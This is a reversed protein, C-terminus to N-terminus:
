WLWLCLWGSRPGAPRILSFSQCTVLFLPVLGLSFFVSAKQYFCFIASSCVCITFEICCMREILCDREFLLILIVWDLMGCHELLWTGEEMDSPLIAKIIGDESKRGRLAGGIVFPLLEDGSSRLSKRMPINSSTKSMRLSSTVISPLLFSWWSQLGFRPPNLCYFAMWGDKPDVVIVGSSSSQHNIIWALAIHGSITFM